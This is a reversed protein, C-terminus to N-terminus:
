VEPLMWTHKVEAIQVMQGHWAADCITKCHGAHQAMKQTKQRGLFRFKKAAKEYSCAVPGGVRGEKPSATWSWNALKGSNGRAEM